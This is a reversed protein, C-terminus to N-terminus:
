LVNLKVKQTYASFMEVSDTAYGPIKKSSPHEVFETSSLSFLSKNVTAWQDTTRSVATIQYLSNWKM